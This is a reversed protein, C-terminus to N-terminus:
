FVAVSCGALKLLRVIKELFGLSEIIGNDKVIVAKNANIEKLSNIAGTGFIIKQRPAQIYSLETVM